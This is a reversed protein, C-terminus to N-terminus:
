RWGTPQMFRARYFRSRDEPRIRFTWTEGIDLQEIRSTSVTTIPEMNRNLLLFNVTPNPWPEDGTNEVRGLIIKQGDRWYTRVNKFNLRREGKQYAWDLESNQQNLLGQGTCGVLMVILFVAMLKRTM